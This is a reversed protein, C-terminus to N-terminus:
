EDGKKAKHQRVSEMEKDWATLIVDRYMYFTLGFLVALVAGLALGVQWLEM